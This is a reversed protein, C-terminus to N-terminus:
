HSQSAITTSKIRDSPLVTIQHVQRDSYYGDSVDVYIFVVATKQTTPATFTLRPGQSTIKPQGTIQWHYTLSHGDPDISHSADLVIQTGGKVEVPGTLSAVPPQNTEVQTEGGTLFRLLVSRTTQLESSSASWTLLFVAALMIIGAILRFVLRQSSM